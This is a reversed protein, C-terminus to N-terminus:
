QDGETIPQGVITAPSGFTRETGDTTLPVVVKSWLLGWDGFQTM